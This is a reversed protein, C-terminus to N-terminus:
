WFIGASEKAWTAFEEESEFTRNRDKTFGHGDTVEADTMKGTFDVWGQALYKSKPEFWTGREM